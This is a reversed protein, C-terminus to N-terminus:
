KKYSWEYNLWDKTDKLVKCKDGKQDLLSRSVHM